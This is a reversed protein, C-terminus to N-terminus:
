FCRSFTGSLRRVSEWFPNCLKMLPKLSILVQQDWWYCKRIGLFYLLWKVSEEQKVKLCSCGSVELKQSYVGSLNILYCWFALHHKQVFSGFFLDLVSFTVMVMTCIRFLNPILNLSFIIFNQVLNVWFSHKQDLLFVIFIVM